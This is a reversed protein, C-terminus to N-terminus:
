ECEEDDYSPEEYIDGGCFPCYVIDVVTYETEKFTIKGHAGCAECDFHRVAMDNGKNAGALSRKEM